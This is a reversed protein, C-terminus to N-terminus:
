GNIPEFRYIWEILIFALDNITSPPINDVTSGTAVNSIASWNPVEDATKIVLYYTTGPSLGTVSFSESSGASKPAPEGTVQIADDWNAESIPSTSYRIDYQSATGSSGDDGPATWSITISTATSGTVTLNAVANPPNEENATARIAVNSLGSWNPVEDATKVAFYYTTGSNLGTVTFSESSGASGPDPEGTARVASNWNQDSIPITAYRVDYEAATGNNGDDGPATWALTVSNTTAYVANLNAINAPPIDEELTQRMVINSLSSWNLVEDATRIGFYYTTGPQLGTVTFSEGQGSAKPAPEGDVQVASNWNSETLPLVSYRIDYQAATGIDGDDGPATWTLTVSTPTAEQAQIRETALTISILLIGVLIIIQRRAKCRIKSSSLFDM